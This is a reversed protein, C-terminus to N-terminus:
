KKPSRALIRAALWSPMCMVFWACFRHILPFAILGKNKRLGRAIVKAAVDADMIFPMAFKNTATMRSRVFGPCVVSVHVGHSKLVGRLAEGYVKVAAKSACYAPAGPWGRYGALSSVIAIQGSGRAVMREQIPQLTNFVGTVNVDFIGRVQEYSESAEFSQTGASIGANAIVLDIPTRQDTKHVFDYMAVQDCVDLVCAEVKAGKDRCIQEVRELREANRGTLILTCGKQQDAYHCALAEGIGSSAGTILITKPKFNYVAMKGGSM